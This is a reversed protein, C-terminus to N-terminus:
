RTAGKKRRSIVVNVTLFALGLLIFVVGRVIFSYSFDFLRLLILTAMMLMGTNLVGFRTERVGKLIVSIGAVLLYLNMLIAAAMGSNDVAHLLYGTGVVVPFAGLLVLRPMGRKVLLIGAGVTVALLSFMLLYEGQLNASLSRYELGAWARKFSLYYTLGMGGLLGVAQFPQQWVMEADAFWLLGVFYLTSFLSAYLLEWLQKNGTMSFCSYFCIVVLWSLVVTSNVYRGVKLLRWYYPMLLALLGWVAQKLLGLQQVAALWVLVGVLYMGAVSKVDMLYVLPLILLMWIMVFSQFDTVLHYTQGVLAIAAGVALALFTAAGELWAASGQKYWLALGAIVQAIVLLGLSILLRSLHRLQDWNYGLILIIGLGLLLAGIMGFVTVLTQRGFQQPLAGYYERIHEAIEPTLIGKAVLEPLQEFLWTVATRNM